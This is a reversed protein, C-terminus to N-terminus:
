AAAKFIQYKLEDRKTRMEEWMELEREYEAMFQKGAGNEGVKLIYQTMRSIEQERRNMANTLNQLNQTTTM